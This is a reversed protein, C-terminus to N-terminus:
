LLDSMSTAITHTVGLRLAEEPLMYWEVRLHEDYDKPTIQTQSLVHNRVVETNYYKDFDATDHFKSTTDWGGNHGDHHLFVGHPLTFRKKGSIYILFGMSACLGVNYTYVPTDSIMIADILSFGEFTEGGPSNIYLKIPQRDKPAIGEDDRNYQIIHHVMDTVILTTSDVVDINGMSMVATNFWLRRAAIDKHHLYEDIATNIKPDGDPLQFYDYKPAKIQPFDRNAM